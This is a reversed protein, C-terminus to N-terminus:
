TKHQVVVEEGDPISIPVTTYSIPYPYELGAWKCARQAAGRQVWSGTGYQVSSPCNPSLFPSRPVSFPSGSVSIRCIWFSVGTELRMIQM